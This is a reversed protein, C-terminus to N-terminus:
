IFRQLNSPPQIISIEYWPQPLLPPSIVCVSRFREITYPGGFLFLLERRPAPVLIENIKFGFNRRGMLSLNPKAQALVKDNGWALACQFSCFYGCCM